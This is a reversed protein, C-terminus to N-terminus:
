KTISRQIRLKLRALISNHMRSIKSKSYGMAHAIERQTKDEIYFLHIIRKEDEALGKVADWLVKRESSFDIQDVVTDAPDTTGEGRSVIDVDDASLLYAVASNATINRLSEEATMGQSSGKSDLVAQAVKSDIKSVSKYNGPNQYKWEKRIKDLIEGRIRYSAYAKFQAGKKPDYNEWANILGTTGYSILDNFHMNKPIKGSAAINAAIMQVLFMYTKILEDKNKMINPLNNADTKKISSILERQPDIVQTIM